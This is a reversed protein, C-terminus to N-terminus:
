RRWRATGCRNGATRLAARCRSVRCESVHCRALFPQHLSEHIAVTVDQEQFHVLQSRGAVGPRRRAPAVIGTRQERAQRMAARSYFGSM